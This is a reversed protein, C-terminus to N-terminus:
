PTAAAKQFVQHGWLWQDEWVEAMGLQALREFMPGFDQVLHMPKDEDEEVGFRGFLYGGPQLSTWLMEATEVPDVLHEFVDMATIFDYAQGPLAQSSTDIVQGPMSRLAFRWRNFRLLSPSIDAVSVEFGNRGFLIGGSGIGSGFDLYARCGRQKAFELATVYALPSLDDELTHWWILEDMMAQSLDYYREVAGRDHADVDRVWEDKMTQTAERCRQWLGDLDEIGLYRGLEWVLSQRLDPQEELVLARAWTTRYAELRRLQEDYFQESTFRSEDVTEWLEMLEDPLLKQM